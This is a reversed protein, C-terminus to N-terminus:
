AVARGAGGVTAEVAAAIAALEAERELLTRVDGVAPEGANKM